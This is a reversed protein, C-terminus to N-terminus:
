FIVPQLSFLQGTTSSIPQLSFLQGATSIIPQLSFLQGTTSSIPQLAFRQGTRSSLPQLLFRQGTRSSLPQLSFLQGSTSSIVERSLHQGTTSSIPQPSFLQGTTSSIPQLSFLQGTVSSILQGSPTTRDHFQNKRTDTQQNFRESLPMSNRNIINMLLSFRETITLLESVGPGKSFENATMSLYRVNSTAFTLNKTVNGLPMGLKKSYCLAWNEIAKFLDLESVNFVTQTVINNLTELDCNLFDSTALVADTKTKIINFCKGTVSGDKYHLSFELVSCVNDPVVNSSIYESSVKKLHVLDYKECAKYVSIATEMTDFSIEDTYIYKMLIKFTSPNVDEIKVKDKEAWNGSLMVKFVPSAIELLLKHGNIKESMQYDGVDFEVDSGEGTELLYKLRDIVSSKSAIKQNEVSM